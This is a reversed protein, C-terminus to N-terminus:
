FNLPKIKSINKSRAQEIKRYFEIARAIGIQKQVRPYLPVGKRNNYLERAYKGWWTNQPFEQELEEASGAKGESINRYLESLRDFIGQEADNIYLRRIYREWREPQLLRDNIDEPKLQLRALFEEHSLGVAQAVDGKRGSRPKYLDTEQLAKTEAESFKGLKVTTDIRARLNAPNGAIAAYSPLHLANFLEQERENAWVHTKDLFEQTFRGSVVGRQMDVFRQELSMANQSIRYDLYLPLKHNWTTTAEFPFITGLGHASVMEILKPSLNKDQLNALGIQTDGVERKEAAHDVEDAYWTAEDYQRRGSHSIIVTDLILQLDVEQGNLQLLRGLQLSTGATKVYHSFIGAWEQNERRDELGVMGAGERVLRTTIEQGNPKRLTKPETFTGEKLAELINSSPGLIPKDGRTEAM